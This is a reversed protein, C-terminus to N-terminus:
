PAGPVHVTVRLGTAQVQFIYGGSCYRAGLRNVDDVPDLISVKLTANELILM